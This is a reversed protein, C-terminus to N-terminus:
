SLSPGAMLQGNCRESQITPPARLYRHISKSGRVYFCQKDYAAKEWPGPPRTEARMMVPEPPRIVPPTLLERRSHLQGPLKERLQEIVQTWNAAPRYHRRMIPALQSTDISPPVQSYGGKSFHFLLGQYREVLHRSNGAASSLPAHFFSLTLAAVAPTVEQKNVLAALRSLWVFLRTTTGSPGGSHAFPADEFLSRYEASDMTFEDPHTGACETISRLALNSELVFNDKSEKGSRPEFQAGQPLQRSGSIEIGKDHISTVIFGEAFRMVTMGIKCGLVPRLVVKLMEPEDELSINLRAMQDDLSLNELSAEAALQELSNPPTQVAVDEEVTRRHIPLELPPRGETHPLTAVDTM